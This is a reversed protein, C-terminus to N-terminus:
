LVARRREVLELPGREPRDEVGARGDEALGGLAIRLLVREPRHAQGRQQGLVGPEVSPGWRGEVSLLCVTFSVIREASASGRPCRSSTPAARSYRNPQILGVSPNM